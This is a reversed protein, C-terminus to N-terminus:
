LKKINYIKRYVKGNELQIRYDKFLKEVTVFQYGRSQMLDIAKLAGLVSNEYIDHLLIIDGEEAESVIYDAIEDASKGTWDMTDVSWLILPENIWSKICSNMEGYPPRVFVHNVPIKGSIAESCLLLEKKQEDANLENLNKHNFTHNGIQHGEDYMRQVLDKNEEIQQGILFFTAKANREKLGDLLMDTTGRKPGDDFTIAIKKKESNKQEVIPYNKIKGNFVSILENKEMVGIVMVFFVFLCIIFLIKKKSLKM